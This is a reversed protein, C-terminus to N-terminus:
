LQIGVRPCQLDPSYSFWWDHVQGDSPLLKTQQTWTGEDRIFLYASLSDIGNHEDGRPDRRRLM